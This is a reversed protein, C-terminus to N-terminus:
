FEDLTVRLVCDDVVTNHFIDVANKASHPSFFLVSGRHTKGDIHVRLISGCPAFISKLSTWSIAPPLNRVFVKRGSERDPRIFVLRDNISTSNLTTIANQAGESTKYIALGAGRSTGDPNLFIELHTLPGAKEMAEKLDKISTHYNLNGIFVRTKQEDNKHPDDPGDLNVKPDTFSWDTLVPLNSPTHTTSSSPSQHSTTGRTGPTNHQTPAFGPQFYIHSALQGPSQIGHGLMFSLSSHIPPSSRPLRISQSVSLPSQRANKVGSRYPSVYVKRTMMLRGNLASIALQASEISDLTVVASGRPSGNRNKLLHIAQPTGIPSFFRILDSESASFPINNVYVKNIHDQVNTSMTPVMPLAYFGPVLQKANGVTTSSSPIIVDPGYWSSQYLTGPIPNTTAMSVPLSVMHPQIPHPTINSPSVAYQFQEAPLFSPITANPSGFHISLVRRDRWQEPQPSSHSLDSPTLSVPNPQTSRKQSTSSTTSSNTLHDSM